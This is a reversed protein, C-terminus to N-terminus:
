LVPPARGDPLSLAAAHDSGVLEPKVALSARTVFAAPTGSPASGCATLFRCVGCDPPHVVPCRATTSSEIHAYAQQGSERAVMGDAVASAAPMAVQLSAWLLALFRLMPARRTM